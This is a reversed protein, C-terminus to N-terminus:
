QMRDGALEAHLTRVLALYSIRNPIAVSLSFQTFFALHSALHLSNLLAKLNTRLEGGMQM